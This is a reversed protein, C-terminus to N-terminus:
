PYFITLHYMTYTSVAGPTAVPVASDPTHCTVVIYTGPTVPATAAVCRDDRAPTASALLREFRASWIQTRLRARPDTWTSRAYLTGQATVTVATGGIGACTGAADRGVGAVTDLVHRGAADQAAACTATATTPNVNDACSLAAVALMAGVWSCAM